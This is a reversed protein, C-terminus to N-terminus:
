SGDMDVMDDCWIGMDIPRKGGMETSVPKRESGTEAPGYTECDMNGGAGGGRTCECENGFPCARGLWTCVPWGPGEDVNAVATPM